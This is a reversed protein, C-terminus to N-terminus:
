AKWCVDEIGLHKNIFRAFVFFYDSLRNLYKLAPLYDEEGLASIMREAKRTSTRVIHCYAAEKSGGPLIFNKLPELEKEMEDIAIELKEIDNEKLTLYKPIDEKKACALSSGIYFLHDQVTGLRQTEKSLDKKNLAGLLAVLYGIQSNLQDLEGYADIQPHHKEVRIGGLLQTSGKDGTKTYVKM